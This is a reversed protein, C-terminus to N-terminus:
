LDNNRSARNARRDEKECEGSPAFIQVFDTLKAKLEELPDGEYGFAPAHWIYLFHFEQGNAGSFWPTAHELMRRSHDSFDVPIAIRKFNLMPEFVQSRRALQLCSHDGPKAHRQHLFRAFFSSGVPKGTRIVPVAAGAPCRDCAPKRADCIERGHWIIQHSFSVWRDRPLLEMLDREIKVPDKQETLGLRGAIRKVHTDVVVGSAIGFATGLVVNATKRAVGALSTLTEMQMPIEGAFDQELRRAMAILNKAKNRFFGTSHVLKEVDEQSAEALRSSTPYREFLAPTVRNVTKDTSQASLITAVLLEFGNNHNLACHAHGWTDELIRLIAEIRTTSDHRPKGGM